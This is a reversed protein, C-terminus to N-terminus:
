TVTQETGASPAAYKVWHWYSTGEINVAHVTSGAYGGAIKTLATAYTDEFGETISSTIDRYNKYDNYFARVVNNYAAPSGIKLDTGTGGTTINYVRLVKIGDFCKNDRMTLGDIMGLENPQLCAAALNALKVNRFVTATDTYGSSNRASILRSIVPLATGTTTANATVKSRRWDPSGDQALQLSWEVSVGEAVDASADLAALDSVDGVTHLVEESFLTSGGKTTATQAVKQANDLRFTLNGADDVSASLDVTNGRGTPFVLAALITATLNHAIRVTNHLGRSGVQLGAIDTEVLTREVISHAVGGRDNINISPSIDKLRGKTISPLSAQNAGLRVKIGVGDPGTAIVTGTSEVVEQEHVKVDALENPKVTLDVQVDKLRTNQLTGALATIEAETAGIMSISKQRIGHGTAAQAELSRLIDEIQTTIIARYDFSCDDKRTVQFDVEKGQAKVTTDYVAKVTAMESLRMNWGHAQQATIYRGVPVTITFDPITPDADPGFSTEVVTADYFGDGRLRSDVVRSLIARATEGTNGEEEGIPSSHSVLFTGLQAKTFGWGFHWRRWTDCSVQIWNTTLNDNLGVPASLVLDTFGTRETRSVTASRGVGSAAWATIIGQALDEPVQFLYGVRREEVTGSNQYANVTFVEAALVVDIFGSGDEPSTQPNVLAVRFPGTYKQGELTIDAYSAEISAAVTDIASVSINPIRVLLAVCPSNGTTNAIAAGGEPPTISQTTGPTRFVQLIRAESWSLTVAWGLRLAQTIGAPHEKTRGAWVQRWVGSYTEKGREGVAIPDTVTYSGAGPYNKASTYSYLLDQCEKVHKDRVDPWQRILERSALLPLDRCQVLHANDEQLYKKATSFDVAM